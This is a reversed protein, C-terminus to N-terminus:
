GPDTLTFCFIRVEKVVAEDGSSTFGKHIDGNLVPVKSGTIKKPDVVDKSDGYHESGKDDIFRILRTFSAM